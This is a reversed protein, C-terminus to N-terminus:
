PTASNLVILDVKPAGISRSISEILRLRCQFPDKQGHYFVAIDIDSLKGANERAQSGFLYAFKVSRESALAQKLAKLVKVDM